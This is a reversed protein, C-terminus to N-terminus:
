VLREFSKFQADRTVSVAVRSIPEAGTIRLLVSPGYRLVFQKLM